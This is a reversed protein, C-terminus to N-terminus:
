RPVTGTGHRKNACEDNQRDDHQDGQRSEEITGLRRQRGGRASAHVRELLFPVGLRRQDVPEQLRRLLHDARDEDAVREDIHQSGRQSRTESDHEDALDADGVGGGDHRKEDDDEGGHQRLRIGEGIGIAHREEDRRDHADDDDDQIRDGHRDFEDDALKQLQRRALEVVLRVDKGRVLLDAAGDLQLLDFAGDRTVVGVHQAAHEVQAIQLDGVDHHVPGLHLRDVGVVRRLLDDVLQQRLWYM